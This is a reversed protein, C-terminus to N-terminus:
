YAFLRASTECWGVLCRSREKAVQVATVTPQGASLSWVKKRAKVILKVTGCQWVFGRSVLLAKSNM